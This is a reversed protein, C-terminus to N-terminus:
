VTKQDVTKIKENGKKIRLIKKLWVDLRHVPTSWGFQHQCWDDIAYLIGFLAGLLGIGVTKLKRRAFAYAVVLLFITAIGFGLYLHHLPYEWDM